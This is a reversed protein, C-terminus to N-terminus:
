AAKDARLGVNVLRNFHRAADTTDFGDLIVHAHLPLLLDARRWITGPCSSRPDHLPMPSTPDRHRLLALDQDNPPYSQAYM